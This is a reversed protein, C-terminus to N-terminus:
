KSSDMFGSIWSVSVPLERILFESWLFKPPPYAARLGKPAPFFDNLFHPFNTFNFSDFICGSILIWPPYRWFASSRLLPVAQVACALNGVGPKLHRRLKWTSWHQVDCFPCVTKAIRDTLYGRENHVKMRHTKLAERSGFLRTATLVPTHLPLHTWRSPMPSHRSQIVRSINCSPTFLACRSSSHGM